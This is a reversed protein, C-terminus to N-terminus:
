LARSESLLRNWLARLGLTEAWKLIYDEDLVGQQVEYVRLADTFQKESGGSKEAWLLKMLIVDEPSSVSLHTKLFEAIRRRSFRSKDFATDTLLWFDVKDGENMEILNFMDKDRIASRASEPDLFTGDLALAACLCDADSPNVEIVLDIDHTLRPEGYISSALSGSIMYPVGAAELASVVRTLLEQQSM